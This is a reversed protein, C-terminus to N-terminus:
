KKKNRQITKVKEKEIQMNYEKGEEDYTIYHIYTEDSGTITCDIEEGDIPIIKDNFSEEEQEISKFYMEGTASNVLSLVPRGVVIGMSVGAEVYYSEGFRINLTLRETAETKAKLTYEGEKKIRITKKSNTRARYIISDNLTVNYNVLMGVGSAPRYIHLLAYDANPDIKKSRHPAQLNEPDVKLLSITLRHCTSWFNPLTHKVIKIANGGIKRAETKASEIADDYNCDTSFGTDGYKVEGLLEYNEPFPDDITYVTVREDYKLPAYTSHTTLKKSHACGSLLISFISLFSLFSLKKM